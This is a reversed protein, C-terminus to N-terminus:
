RSFKADNECGCHQCNGCVDNGIKIAGYFMEKKEISTLYYRFSTRIIHEEVDRCNECIVRMLIYRAAETSTNQPKETKRESPKNQHHLYVTKNNKKRTWQKRVATSSLQRTELTEVDAGNNWTTPVQYFYLKIKIIQSSSTVALSKHYCLQQTPFYHYNTAAMVTSGTEEISSGYFPHHFSIRM